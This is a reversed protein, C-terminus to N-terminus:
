RDGDTQLWLMELNLIQIFQDQWLGELELSCQNIHSTAVRM